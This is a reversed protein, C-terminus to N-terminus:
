EEGREPVIRSCKYPKGNLVTAGMLDCDRATASYNSHSITIVILTFIVAGLIAASLYKWWEDKM